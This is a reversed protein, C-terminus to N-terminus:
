ECINVTKQNVVGDTLTLYDENIKQKSKKMDKM